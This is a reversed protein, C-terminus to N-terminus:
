SSLSSKHAKRTLSLPILLILIQPHGCTLFSDLLCTRVEGATHGGDIYMRPNERAKNFVGKFEMVWREKRVVQSLVETRWATNTACLFEKSEFAVLDAWEHLALYRPAGLEETTEVLVFRRSSLWSPVKSLLPIHEQTYWDNFQTESTASPTMANIVLYHNHYPFTPQIPISEICPKYLRCAVLSSGIFLSLNDSLARFYPLTAHPIMLVSIPGDDIGSYVFPEPVEPQLIVASIQKYDVSAQEFMILLMYHPERDMMLLSKFFKSGPRLPVIGSEVM